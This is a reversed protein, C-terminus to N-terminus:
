PDRAAPAVAGDAPVQLRIEVEHGCVDVVRVAVTRGPWLPYQGSVQAVKGRPADVLRARFRRGDHDPDVFVAQVAERWDEPWPHGQRALLEALHPCFFGNVELRHGEEAARLGVQVALNGEPPPSAKALRHVEVRLGEGMQALRCLATRIATWNSDCGVWPRELEQAVVATTGSGLFGDLVPHGPETATELIRRLLHTSKQTPYNADEGPVTGLGPVDDWINDVARTVAYQDPGCPELYYKVGINGGNSAYIRRTKEDVVIEGGYPAYLRGERHLALLREFSYTGPDSTRFFGREDEMFRAAAQARTLLIRKRPPNWVPRANPRRAVIHISHASYPFYRAHVKAGRATQSRWTVTNLFCEPGFIEELLLRLRASSRHDCHLWLTGDPHMLERFLLLREAMFQLYEAEDWTDPYQLQSALRPSHRRRLRIRRTHDRGSNYPPDLYILRFRGRHGHALLWAAADRNDGHLLLGSSTTSPPSGLELIEVVTAMPAAVVVELRKGPWELRVSGSPPSAQFRFVTEPRPESPNVPECM